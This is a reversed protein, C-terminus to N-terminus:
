RGELVDREALEKLVPRPEKRTRLVASFKERGFKGVVEPHLHLSGDGALVRGVHDGYSHPVVFIASDQDFRCWNYRM